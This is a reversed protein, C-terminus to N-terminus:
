RFRVTASSEGPWKLFRFVPSSESVPEILEVCFEDSGKFFQVRVDQIPDHVVESVQRFKCVAEWWSAAKQINSVVIGIHHLKM